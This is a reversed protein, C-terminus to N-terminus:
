NKIPARLKSLSARTKISVNELVAISSLFRQFAQACPGATRGAAPARLAVSYRDSNEDSQSELYYAPNLSIFHEPMPSPQIQLCWWLYKTAFEENTDNYMTLTPAIDLM